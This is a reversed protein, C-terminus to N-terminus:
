RASPEGARSGAGHARALQLVRAANHDWSRERAVWARGREGLERRLAPADALERIARALERPNGAEVLRGREGGGLIESVQGLDGAVVPLALAMYEFLKIPSFYFNSAELFPAVGVDMAALYEPVEAHPVGGTFTLAAAVGRQRSLERLSEAEPGDGVILVHLDPRDARLLALAEILIATGHWRKLSGVFGLVCRGDLGLRRRVADRRERAAEFRALNVGNPLVSVREPLVGLGIAFRRLQESVVLVHDTECLIRQELEHALGRLELGARGEQEAVLPANVELLHPVGLERAIRIGAMAAFAYREYIFDVRAEGFARTGHELLTRNYLLNRLEHRLRTPRGFWPDLQELELQLAAHSDALGVREVELPAGEGSLGAGAGSEPVAPSLLHVAVGARRFADVLERLHVTKGADGCFPVGFDASVYGIKM